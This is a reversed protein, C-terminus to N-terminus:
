KKDKSNNFGVKMPKQLYKIEKEAKSIKIEVQKNENPNLTLNIDDTLIKYKSDLGNRYVKLKWDGPRLYTFDFPKTINCIKKFVSNESTIEVIVSQEKDNVDKEDLIIIGKINSAKTIGFDFYNGGEVITIKAPIDIDTIDKVGLTGQEIELFYTDPKVNKFLFHGREDTIASYPGLHLKVGQTQASELTTINGEFFGYEKIKKIPAHIDLAYRIFFTFDKNELQNQALAYRSLMNIQQRPSIRYNLALELLNRDRYYDELYYTNQYFLSLDWRDYITTNIRGGYLFLKEDKTAYRSVTSYSGYLSISNRKYNYSLNATQISTKGTSNILFNTTEAFFMQLNISFKYIDQSLEIRNFRERYFFQKHEMRDEYEQTGNFLSLAGRKLYNYRIGIQFAERFPAAGYLTDREFNRADKQYNVSLNLKPLIRYNVNSTFFQTDTYYGSFHPSAHIYSVNVNLNNFYSQAQLQWATGQTKENNSIAYEGQIGIKDFVTTEGSVYQLHDDQHDKRKLLYGYSINNKANFNVKTYLNIEEKIDRFFRPKNYFGGVELKKIKQRLEIGRGYRSFETLFSSSFIKDGIHAYFNNSKYNIFYEEYQSFATLGFRDPGIARFELLKTNEENLAGRGYIEGQFGSEYDNRQQRGIYTAAVRVPFRLWVDENVPFAPIVNTIQSAFVSQTSDSKVAATLKILNQSPKPQRLATVQYANITSSMGPLLLIPNDGKIFTSASTEIFINEQVNGENKLIFFSSITDGAKVYAPASILDLTIRQIQSVTLAFDQSYLITNTKDNIILHISDEGKSSNIPVQIAVLYIKTENAGLNLDYPAAALIWGSPLTVKPTVLIDKPFPNTIKFVLTQVKGPTIFENQNVLNVALNQAQFFYPIIFLLIIIIKNM